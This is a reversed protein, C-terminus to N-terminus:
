AAIKKARGAAKGPAWIAAMTKYIQSHTAAKHRVIDGLSLMGIVQFENNVVPLRRVQASAMRQLAKEPTDGALCTAVKTSMLEQVRLTAPDCDSALAGLCLDRDTIVGVLPSPYELRETVPVIGTGFRKMISAAVTVFDEPTCCSPNRTMMQEVKM